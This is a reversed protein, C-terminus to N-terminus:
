QFLLDHIEFWDTSMDTSNQEAPGAFVGINRLKETNFTTGKNALNEIAETLSLQHCKLQPTLDVSLNIREHYQANPRDDMRILLRLSGQSKGCLKLTTLVQQKQTQNRKVGARAGWYDNQTKSVKLFVTSPTEPRPQTRFFLLSSNETENAIIPQWHLRVGAKHFAGMNPFSGVVHSRFLILLSFFLIWGTFSLLRVARMSGSGALLGLLGVAIDLLSAQRGVAMQALEVAFIAFVVIGISHHRQFVRRLALYLIWVGPFHLANLLIDQYEQASRFLTNNLETAPLFALVALILCCLTLQLARFKSWGTSAPKPNSQGPVPTQTTPKM